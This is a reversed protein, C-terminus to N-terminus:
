GVNFSGQLIATISLSLRVLTSLTFFFFFFIWMNNFNFFIYFTSPDLAIETLIEDSNIYNVFELKIAKLSLFCAALIIQFLLVNKSKYSWVDLSVTFNCNLCYLIAALIVILGIFYFWFFYFKIWVWVIGWM